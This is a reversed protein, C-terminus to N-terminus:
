AAAPALKYRDQIFQALDKINQSSFWPVGWDVRSDCVVAVLNPDGKCAHGKGLEPRFVEIKPLEAHKFGEALVLDMGTMLPLLEEPSHDHTVDTVMGIRNPSTIISTAAGAQKHKHSDKGPKDLDFGHTDHKITGVRFGSQVLNEILKVILTTKGVGSFGVICILLPSNQNKMTLKHVRDDKREATEDNWLPEGLTNRM